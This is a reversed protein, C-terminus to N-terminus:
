GSLQCDVSPARAYVREQPDCTDLRGRDPHREALRELPGAADALGSRAEDELHLGVLPDHADALSGARRQRDDLRDDLALQALEEDALVRKAELPQEVAHLFVGAVPGRD